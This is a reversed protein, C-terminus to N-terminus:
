VCGDDNGGNRLNEYAVCDRVKSVRVCLLDCRFVKQHVDAYQTIPAGSDLRRRGGGANARLWAMAMKMVLMDLSFLTIVARLLSCECCCIREGLM